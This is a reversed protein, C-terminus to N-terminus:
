TNQLGSQIAVLAGVFQVLCKTGPMSTKGTSIFFIDYVIPM